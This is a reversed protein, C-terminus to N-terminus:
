SPKVKGTGFSTLLVFVALSMLGIIVTIAVGPPFTGAVFPIGVLALIISTWAAIFKKALGRGVWTGRAHHLLYRAGCRQCHTTGPQNALGCELCSLSAMQSPDMRYHRWGKLIRNEEPFIAEPMQHIAAEALALAQGPMGKNYITRALKFKAPANTPTRELVAYAREIAEVDIKDLARKNLSARVAPFAGRTLVVATLILPAMYPERALLATMGLGIGVLIGFLASLVDVDGQVAWHVLSLVWIGIPVWIFCGALLSGPHNFIQDRLM